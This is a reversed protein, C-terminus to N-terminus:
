VLCSYKYNYQVELISPDDPDDIEEEMDVGGNLNLAELYKAHGKKNHNAKGCISCHMPVGAKNLYKVGDKEKEESTQRRNKKPRGM